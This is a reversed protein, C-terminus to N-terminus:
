DGWRSLAFHFRHFEYPKEGRDVAGSFFQRAVLMTAHIHLVDGPHDYIYMAAETDDRFKLAFENIGLEKAVEHIKERDRVSFSKSRQSDFEDLAADLKMRSLM